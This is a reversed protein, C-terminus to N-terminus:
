KQSILTTEGFFVSTDNKAPTTTPNPLFLKEVMQEALKQYGKKIGEQFRIPYVWSDYLRKETEHVFTQDYWGTKETAQVLKVLVVLVLVMSPNWEGEGDDLRKLWIKEVSLELVTDVSQGVMGESTQSGEEPVMVFTHSTRARAEKLFASLFYEQIPYQALTERLYTETGEINFASPPETPTLAGGIAGGLGGFITVPLALILLTLGM